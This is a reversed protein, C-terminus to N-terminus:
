YLRSISATPHNGRAGMRPRCASRGVPPRRPFLARMVPAWDQAPFQIDTIAGVEWEGGSAAIAEQTAKSIVQTYGIQEQVIHVKNNKPTWKGSAKLDSLFRIFGSGYYTEAVDVQFINRFKQTDSKYLYLSAQQTNGHLYPVGSAAAAEMAPQPILVFPSIIAHAGEENLNQFATLTGEPTLIDIDVNNIQIMRGNVVGSANIDEVAM